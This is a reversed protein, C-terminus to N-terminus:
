ADDWPITKLKPWVKRWRKVKNYYMEKTVITNKNPRAVMGLLDDLGYPAYIEIEDKKNLTIGTCTAITPWGAIGEQTTRIPAIMKGFDEEYWTHVRAQNVIEVELPITNYLSEGLQIYYNEINKSIDPDFYVLDIDKIHANLDFGSLYNWVTQSIVGGAIYWNPLKLQPTLEFAEKLVKNEFLIALLQNAHDSSYM